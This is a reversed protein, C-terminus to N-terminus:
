ALAPLASWPAYAGKAGAALTDRGVPKLCGGVVDTRAVPAVRETLRVRDNFLAALHDENLDLCAAARLTTGRLLSDGSALSRM